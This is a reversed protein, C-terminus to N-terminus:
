RKSSPIHKTAMGYILSYLFPSGGGVVRFLPSLVAAWIPLVTWSYTVVLFWACALLYGGMNAAVLLREGLRGVLLGYPLTLVLGVVSDLASYFGRLHALDRQIASSKCLEEPVHGDHDVYGPQHDRCVGLELLRVTSVYKLLDALTFLVLFITTALLTRLADGSWSTAASDYDDTSRQQQISQVEDGGTEHTHETLLSSSETPDNMPTM